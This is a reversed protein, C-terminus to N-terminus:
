ESDTITVTPMACINFPVWGVMWDAMGRPLLDSLNNVQLLKERDAAM